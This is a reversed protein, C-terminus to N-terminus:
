VVFAIQSWEEPLHTDYIGHSRLASAPHPM